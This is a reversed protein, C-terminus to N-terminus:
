CCSAIQTVQSLMLFGPGWSRFETITSFRAKNSAGERVLMWHKDLYSLALRLKGPKAKIFELTRVQSIWSWFVQAKHGPLSVFAACSSLPFKLYKCLNM